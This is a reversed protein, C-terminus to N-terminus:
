GSPVVAKYTTAVRPAVDYAWTGGPGTLVIALQAFSAGGFPQAWLTVQENAGQTITTGSLRVSRGAVVAAASVALTVGPGATTFTTDGSTSTGSANSAVIRFHYTTGATLGGIQVSVPVTNTGGGVDQTATKTGYATSTGWEAYWSTGHGNPAVTGNLTATTGGIASAASSSARPKGTTTFITDSGFTTGATSSAVLRVHYTTAAALGSLTASVNKSGTGSGVSITSSKSGYGTTTGYEFWASTSAGNPGVRGNAKASTDGLVTAADTTATPPSAAAATGAAALAVAVVLLLLSARM